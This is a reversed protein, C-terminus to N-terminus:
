AVAFDTLKRTEPDHFALVIDEKPVGKELLENAIGAETWDEEIYIKENKIRIYVSIAKIRKNNRWGVNFWLYQSREDDFILEEDIDKEPIQSSIKQYESLINKILNQYTKLKDM